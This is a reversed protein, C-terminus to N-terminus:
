FFENVSVIERVQIIKYLEPEEDSRITEIELKELCLINWGLYRFTVEKVNELDGYMKREM